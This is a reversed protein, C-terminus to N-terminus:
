DNSRRRLRREASTQEGAVVVLRREWQQRDAAHTAVRARRAALLHARGITTNPAQLAMPHLPNAAAQRLWRVLKRPVIVPGEVVAQVDPLSSFPLGEPSLFAAQQQSQQPQAQKAPQRKGSAAAKGLKAAKGSAGGGPSGSAVAPLQRWGAPLVFEVPGSGKRRAALFSASANGSLAAKSFLGTSGSVAAARNQQQTQPQQVQQPRQAPTPQQQLSATAAPKAEKVPELKVADCLPQCDHLNKHKSRCPRPSVLCPSALLCSGCNFAVPMGLCGLWVVMGQQRVKRLRTQFYISQLCGSARMAALWVCTLGM